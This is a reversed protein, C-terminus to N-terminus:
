SFSINLKGHNPFLNELFELAEKTSLGKYKEIFDVVDGKDSTSLDKWRNDIIYFSPNKDVRLPSKCLAKNKPKKPSFFEINLIKFLDTM